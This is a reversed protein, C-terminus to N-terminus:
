KGTHVEIILGATNVSTNWFGHVPDWIPHNDGVSYTFGGDARQEYELGDNVVQHYFTGNPIPFLAWAVFSHQSTDASTPDGLAWRYSYILETGDPPRNKALFVWEEWGPGDKHIQSQFFSGSTM